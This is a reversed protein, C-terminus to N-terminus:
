SAQAHGGKPTCNSKGPGCLAYVSKSAVFSTIAAISTYAGLKLLKRRIRRKQEEPTDTSEESMEETSDTPEEPM